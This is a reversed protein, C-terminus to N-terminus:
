FLKGREVFVLEPFIDQDFYKSYKKPLPIIVDSSIVPPLYMRRGRYVVVMGLLDEYVIAEVAFLTHCKEDYCAKEDVLNLIQPTHPM